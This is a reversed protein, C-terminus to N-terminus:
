RPAFDARKSPSAWAPAPKSSWHITPRDPTRPRCQRTSAQDVGEVFTVTSRSQSVLLVAGGIEGVSRSMKADHEFIRINGIKSLIWDRDDATDGRGFGVYVLLGREIAGVAEGDVEVRGELVRQVVARV